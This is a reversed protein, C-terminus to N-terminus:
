VLDIEYLLDQKDGKIGFLKQNIVQFSGYLAMLKESLRIDREEAYLEDKDDQDSLSDRYKIYETNEELEQDIEAILSRVMPAPDGLAFDFIMEQLTAEDKFKQNKIFM